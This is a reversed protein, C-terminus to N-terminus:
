FLGPCEIAKAKKRRTTTQQKAITYAKEIEKRTYAETFRLAEEAYHKNRLVNVRNRITKSIKRYETKNQSIHLKKREDWLATLVIDDDWPYAEKNAGRVVPLAEAATVLSSIIAEASGYDGSDIKALFEAEHEETVVNYDYKPKRVAKEVKKKNVRKKPFRFRTKVLRHDSSFDYSRRVRSDLCHKQM